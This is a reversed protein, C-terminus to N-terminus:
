QINELGRVTHEVILGFVNVAFVYDDTAVVDKVTGAFNFQTIFAPESPVSVDYVDVVGFENAVYAIGDSVSVANGKGLGHASGAEVMNSPNSINIVKLGSLGSTIYAYNGNITFGTANNSRGDQYEITASAADLLEPNEPDAISFSFFQEGRANYLHGRSIFLHEWYTLGEVWPIEKIFEPSTPDSVNYIALNGSGIAAYAYGNNVSIHELGWGGIGEDPNSFVGEVQGTIYPNQPDSIDVIVLEESEAALYAYNGSIAMDQVYDLIEVRGLEQIGGELNGIDYIVLQQSDAVVALNGKIRVKTAERDTSLAQFNSPFSNLSEQLFAFIKVGSYTFVKDEHLEFQYGPASRSDIAKLAGSSNIEFTSLADDALSFFRNDVVDFESIQGVGSLQEELLINSPDSVNLISIAATFNAQSSMYIHGNAYAIGGASSGSTPYRGLLTLSEEDYISLGGAYHYLIGENFSVDFTNDNILGAEVPSKPNDLNLVSTSDTSFDNLYIKNNAFSMNLANSDLEYTSALDPNEPDSVDFIFIGVGNVGAYLHDNFFRVSSTIGRPDSPHSLNIEGLLEAEPFNEISFVRLAFERSVASNGESTINRSGWAYLQDEDYVIHEAYFSSDYNRLNLEGLSSLLYERAISTVSGQSGSLLADLLLGLQEKDAESLTDQHEAPIFALLDDENIIGDNNLDQSLLRRSFHDLRNIIGSVDAGTLLLQKISQYGMETMLSIRFSGQAIQRGSLVARLAGQKPTPTEDLVGDDDVDIDQGGQVVVLYFMDPAISCDTLDIVGPGDDSGLRSTTKTCIPAGSLNDISYVFVSADVIPGLLAQGKNAGLTVDPTANNGGGTQGGGSGGSGGGSGGSSSGGGGGCAMILFSVLILFSVRMHM